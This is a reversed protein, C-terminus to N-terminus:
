PDVRTPASDRDSGLPPIENAVPPLSASRPAPRARAALARMSAWAARAPHLRRLLRWTKPGAGGTVELRRRAQFARLNHATQAGFLGTLRQHPFVAALHEQLWLVDDGRDGHRLVRIGPRPAGTAPGHPGGLAPWLGNASVWAFDWWSIGRAHNRVALARFRRVEAGGAGNDAQGLPLIPRGYVRNTAYTHRYVADVGTGIDRWYMQPLDFQAGGPGLFVSYPFAPHYDVYPFSALGLRYRHGVAARLRHLYVQAAAYRGEYEAEADIILCEAGARAARAAAAAEGVPHTGYVYQWACVHLHRRRLTSVLRRDFQRWPRVGDAAKVILTRVGAARAHAAITAIRGGDSRSMYWVWVARGDPPRGAADAAAPSLGLGLTVAVLALRLGV